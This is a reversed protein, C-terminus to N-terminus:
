RAWSDIDDSGGTAFSFGCPRLFGQLLTPRLLTECIHSISPSRHLVRRYRRCAGSGPLSQCARHELAVLKPADAATPLRLRARVAQRHRLATVAFYWVAARARRRPQAEVLSCRDADSAASRRLSSSSSAIGSRMLSSMPFEGCASDGALGSSATLLESSLCVAEDGLGLECCGGVKRISWAM